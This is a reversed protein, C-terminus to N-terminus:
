FLLLRNLSHNKRYNQLVNKLTALMFVPWYRNMGSDVILYSENNFTHLILPWCMNLWYDEKIMERKLLCRLKLLISRDVIDHLGNLSQIKM